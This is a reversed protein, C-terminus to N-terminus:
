YFKSIDNENLDLDTNFSVVTRNLTKNIEDHSGHKIHSPFLVLDGKFPKYSVFDSFNFDLSSDRRAYSFVHSIYYNPNYFVIGSSDEDVNIYLAGSLISGRHHHQNLSSNSEQINFWSNTIKLFHLKFDESFNDLENKIKTKILPFQDLFNSSLNFSSTGNKLSGHSKTNSNLCVNFIEGCQDESLFNNIIKIPTAFVSITTSNSM